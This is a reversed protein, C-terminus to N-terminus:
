KKYILYIFYKKKINNKRYYLGEIIDQFSLIRIRYLHYKKDCKQCFYNLVSKIYKKEKVYINFLYYYPKYNLINKNYKLFYKAKINKNLFYLNKGYHGSLLIFPYKNKMLIKAKKNEQNQLYFLGKLYNFAKKNLILHKNNELQRKGFYISQYLIHIGIFDNKNIVNIFDNVIKLRDSIKM